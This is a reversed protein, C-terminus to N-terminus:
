GRLGEFELQQGFARSCEFQIRRLRERANTAAESAREVKSVLRAGAPMDEFGPNREIFRELATGVEHSAGVMAGTASDVAQIKAHLLRVAQIDRLRADEWTRVMWDTIHREVNLREESEFDDSLGLLYDASVDYIRAANIILNLPVSRIDTVNEVKALKAGSRYGLRKAAEQQSLNCLERAERMRQGILKLLDANTLRATKSTTRQASPM